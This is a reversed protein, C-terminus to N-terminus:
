ESITREHEDVLEAAVDRLKRNSLHSWRRLLDFASEARCTHRAMLLGQAQGIVERTRVSDERQRQGDIASHLAAANALVVAAQRAFAEAAEIESADIRESRSYLVLAGAPAAAAVLPLAVVARFGRAM